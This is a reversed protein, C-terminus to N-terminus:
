EEGGGGGGAALDGPTLTAPDFKKARELARALTTDFDPLDGKVFRLPNIHALVVNRLYLSVVGRAKLAEIHAAVLDDLALLADARRERVPLAVPLARPLFDDVKKVLSHYAGGAFRPRREYCVGLTVLAAEDFELALDTEKQETGEAVLHRYMRVVELAREGLSHAKETNLALIRFAIEREPVILATIARAGMQQMAALRHRGNPTWWAAGERVVIVPDLYRDLNDMVTALRQAHPTSLNRQFPTPAVKDAPLVALLLAHGGLPDRYAALVRGGDGEVAVALARLEASAGMLDIAVDGVALGRSGATPAAKKRSARPKAATTNDDSASPVSKKARPM